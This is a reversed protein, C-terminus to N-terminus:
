LSHGTDKDKIMRMVLGVTKMEPTPFDILVVRQLGNEPTQQFTKVLKHVSGYVMKVLPIRNMTNDFFQFIKQGLVHTSIMGILYLLFVVMFATFFVQFWQADALAHLVPFSPALWDALTHV